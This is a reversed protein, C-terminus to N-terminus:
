DSLDIVDFVEQQMPQAAPRTAPTDFLQSASLQIASFAERPQRSESRARSVSRSMSMRNQRMWEETEAMTQKLNASRRFLDEMELERQMESKPPQMRRNLEAEEMQKSLANEEITRKARERIEQFNMRSISTSPTAAELKARKASSSIITSISRKLSRDPTSESEISSSMSSRARELMGSSRLDVAATSAVPTGNPMTYIGRAKLRFYDTQVNNPRSIRDDSAKYSKPLLHIRSGGQSINLPINNEITASRSRRHLASGSQSRKLSSGFSSISQNFRPPTGQYQPLHDGDILSQLSATSHGLASAPRAFRDPMPSGLPTTSRPPGMDGRVIRSAAQGPNQLGNLVGSSHLMRAEDDLRRKKHRADSVSKSFDTVITKRSEKAKLAKARKEEAMQQRLLRNARGRRLQWKKHANERWRRFFKVALAYKRFQEAEKLREEHKRQEVNQEVKLEVEREEMAKRCEREVEAELFQAFIGDDDMFMFRALSLPIESKPKKASPLATLPQSGSTIDTGFQSASSPVRETTQSSLSGINKPVKPPKLWSYTTNETTKQPAPATTSAAPPQSPPKFSGLPASNSQAFLSQSTPKSSAAFQPVPAAASDTRAENTKTAFSSANTDESSQAKPSEFSFLGPVAPAPASSTAATKGFSFLPQSASTAPPKFPQATSPVDSANEPLKEQQKPAFSFVPAPGNNVKALSPATQDFISTGNTANPASSKASEETKPPQNFFVNQSESAPRNQATNGFINFNDTKSTSVTSPAMLPNQAPMGFANLGQMKPPFLSSSNLASISSSQTAALPNETTPQNSAFPSFLANTKPQTTNGNNTVGFGSFGGTTSPFSSFLPATVAPKQEDSGDEDDLFGGFKKAKVVPKAFQNAAFAPSSTSPVQSFPQSFPQSPQAFKQTFAGIGNQMFPQQFPNSNGATDEVFMSEQDDGSIEAAYTNTYICAPISQNNRKNEVITQSFPQKIKTEPEILSGGTEFDLYSEGRNEKIHLGYAEIFDEADNLSDFNLYSNLAALTWDATQDRQKRYAALITSLITKRVSNFHIEAFCAMVYSVQQQKLITFFRSHFNLAIDSASHPKLPGNIEWINHLCEVLSTATQIDESAWSERGWDQVTELITPTRAHYLVYYARFEAENPCDIGSAKCDEYAHILSLLTRGLQEVEQHESFDDSTNSTNSMQHLAVVHFRAITELCYIEDEYEAPTLSAQQFTFDRRISRTRDWLFNHVTPLNNGDGLVDQLLYDLTRRLAAPTRIDDPLPADQGASSRGYAKIMKKPAAWLSGGPGAEKELAKVDREMIRTIQEFRPCMEECTGKFDIAESLKKPKDPDDILGADMLVKRVKARYGKTSQWFDKVASNQRPDGPQAM